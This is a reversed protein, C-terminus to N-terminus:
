RKTPADTAVQGRSRLSQIGIWVLYAAGTLRLALYADESARLVASLGLAATVVWVGLGSLVGLVTKAAMARGGRVLNRVVVLTDPGPLLVILVAALPFTAIALWMPALTSRRDPPRTM